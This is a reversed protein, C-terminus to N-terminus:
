KLIKVLQGKKFEVNINIKLIDEESLKFIRAVDSITENEKLRYYFYSSIYKEKFLEQKNKKDEEKNDVENDIKKNEITENEKKLINEQEQIIKNEEVIENEKEDQENITPNENENTLNTEAEQSVDELSSIEIIDNRKLDLEDYSTSIFDVNDKTIYNELNNLFDNDFSIEDKEESNRMLLDIMSRNIEKNKTPEFSILEENNGLLKTYVRFEIENEKITHEFHDIVLKLEKLCDIKTLSIFIDVPIQIAEYDNKNESAIVFTIYINGKIHVGDDNLENVFEHDLLINKVESINVNHIFTKKFIYEEM